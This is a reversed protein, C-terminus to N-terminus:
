PGIPIFVMSPEGTLAIVILGDPTVVMQGDKLGAPFSSAGFTVTNLLTGDIAHVEIVNAPTLSVSGCITRGDSAVEVNNLYVNQVGPLGAIFQLTAPNVSACEYPPAAGLYLRTGGGNVAIDRGYAGSSSGTAQHTVLLVGAAMTSYDVDYSNISSPAGGKDQVYVRRGDATATMLDRIGSIGLYRSGSYAQGNGVLVVEVGNPQIVLLETSAAVDGGVLPWTAIKTQSSLDVVSIAQNITDLEYLRRGDPSVAMKGLASAVGTISGIKLKTYAHYIDISTDNNHVYVYPRIKDAVINAYTLSLPQIAILGNASKWLAVRIVAPSVGPTASSLTVNAYSMANGPLTTANAVLTITSM